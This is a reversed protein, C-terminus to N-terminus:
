KKLINFFGKYLKQMNEGYSQQWAKKIDGISYSNIDRGYAIKNLKNVIAEYRESNLGEENKELEKPEISIYWEQLADILNLAEKKNIM